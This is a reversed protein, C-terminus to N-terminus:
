NEVEFWKAGHGFENEVDFGSRLRHFIKVLNLLFIKKAIRFSKGFRFSGRAAGLQLALETQPREGRMNNADRHEIRLTASPLDEESRLIVLLIGAFRAGDLKDWAGIFDFQERCEPVHRFM